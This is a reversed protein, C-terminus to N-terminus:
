LRINLTMMVRNEQYESIANDSQQDTYQYNLSVSMRENLVRGLSVSTIWAETNDSLESNPVGFESRPENNNWSVSGSLTYTRSILPSYTLALDQYESKLGNDQETQESHSAIFNIRARRGGYTYGVTFREDLIPGQSNQASFNRINQNFENGETLIDRGFTITKSYSASFLSRKRKHTINLRPTSGFFRDGTGIAVTTRISPTWRVGLDWTGGNTNEDNVTQFDNWEWGYSGNVQWERNLQYGLDLGAAKLETDERPEPPGDGVNVLDDDSYSVNRYNGFLNWSIQTSSGNKLNTSWSDSSSNSVDDATNIIENYNYKLNYTAFDKLRRSLTPSLSYQYYTNTNGNGDLSDGGGVFPSVENQDARGTANMTLWDDILIASGSAGINPAFQERNGFSGGACDDDKLKSNTLTNFQVSGNVNFKAKRGEGKISGSPTVLGVWADQKNSNSLCVNDTYTIGPAVAASTTFEASFSASSFACAVMILVLSKIFHHACGSNM